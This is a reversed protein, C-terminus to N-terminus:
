IGGLKQLLQEKGFCFGPALNVLLDIQMLAKYIEERADFLKSLGVKIRKKIKLILHHKNKQINHFEDKNTSGSIWANLYERM